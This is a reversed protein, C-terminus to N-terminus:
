NKVLFSTGLTGYKLNQDYHGCMWIENSNKQTEMAGDKCVNANEMLM